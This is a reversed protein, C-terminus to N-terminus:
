HFQICFFQLRKQADHDIFKARRLVSGKHDDAFFQVEIAIHLAPAQDRGGLQRFGGVGPLAVDLFPERGLCRRSKDFVVRRGSLEFERGFLRRDERDIVTRDVHDSAELCKVGNIGITRM